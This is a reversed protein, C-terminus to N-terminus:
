SSFAHQGAGDFARREPPTLLREGGDTLEVIRVGSRHLWAAWAEASPAGLAGDGALLVLVERGEASWERCQSATEPRLSACVVVVAAARSPLAFRTPRGGEGTPATMAALARRWGWGGVSAAFPVGSASGGIGGIGGALSGGGSGVGHSGVGLGGVDGGYGSAAGYGGYSAGGGVSVSGGSSAGGVGDALLRFARRRSGLAVAAGAAASACDELRDAEDPGPAAVVIATEAASRSQEPQRVLWDDSRAALKWLVRTLPDGERYARLESGEDDGGRAPVRNGEGLSLLLKVTEYGLSRPRPAAAVEVRGSRVRVRQPVIGFPDGAWLEAPEFAFVGRQTLPLVYRYATKRTLWPGHLRDHEADGIRERVVLWPIPLALPRTLTVEVEAEEGVAFAGDPPTSGDAGRVVRTVRVGQLGFWRVAWGYAAIFSYTWFLFLLTNGGRAVMGWGLLAWVALAAWRHARM